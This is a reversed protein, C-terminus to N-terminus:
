KTKDAFFFTSLYNERFTLADGEKNEVACTSSLLYM